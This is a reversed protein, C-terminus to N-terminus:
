DLPRGPQPFLPPVPGGFSEQEGGTQCSSQDGQKRAKGVQQIVQFHDAVIRARPLTLQVASRKTPSRDRSVAEVVDGDSLRELLHSVEDKTRGASVELV